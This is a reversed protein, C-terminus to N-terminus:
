FQTVVDFHQLFWVESKVQKKKEPTEEAKSVRYRVVSEVQKKKEPAEDEKSVRYRVVSKVQKKQKPTVRGYLM